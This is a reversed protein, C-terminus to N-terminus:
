NRGLCPPCTLCSHSVRWLDVNKQEESSFPASVCLQVRLLEFKYCFVFSEVWFVKGANMNISNGFSVHLHLQKYM